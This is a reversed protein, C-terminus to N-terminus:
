DKTKIHIPQLVVQMVNILEASGTYNNCQYQGQLNLVNHLSVSWSPETSDAYKSVVSISVLCDKKSVTLESVYLIYYNQLNTYAPESVNDMHTNVLWKRMLDSTREYMYM